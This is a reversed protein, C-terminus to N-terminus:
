CLAVGLEADAEHIWDLDAEKEELVDEIVKAEEPLAHFIQGRKAELM